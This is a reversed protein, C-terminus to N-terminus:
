VWFYENKDFLKFEMVHGLGKLKKNAPHPKLGYCIKLVLFLFSGIM